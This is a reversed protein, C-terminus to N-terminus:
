LLKPLEEAHVERPDADVPVNVTTPLQDKSSRTVSLLEGETTTVERTAEIVTFGDRTVGVIEAFGVVISM